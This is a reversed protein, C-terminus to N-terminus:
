RGKSFLYKEPLYYDGGIKLVEWVLDVTNKKGLRFTNTIKEKGEIFLTFENGDIRGIKIIINKKQAM